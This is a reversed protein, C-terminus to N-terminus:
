VLRRRLSVSVREVVFVVLFFMVVIGLARNVVFYDEATKASLKYGYVSIFMVAVGFIVAAILGIM